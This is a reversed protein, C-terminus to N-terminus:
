RGALRTGARRWLARVRRRRFAPPVGIIRAVGRAAAPNAAAAASAATYQKRLRLGGLCIPESRSQGLGVADSEVARLLSLSRVGGLKQISSRAITASTHAASVGSRQRREDPESVAIRSVEGEIDAPSAPLFASANRSRSLFLPAFSLTRTRVAGSERASARSSEEAFDISRGPSSIRTSVSRGGLASSGDEPTRQSDNPVGAGLQAMVAARRVLRSGPVSETNMSTRRKPLPGSEQVSAISPAPFVDRAKSASPHARKAPVIDDARGATVAEIGCSARSASLETCSSGGSTGEM